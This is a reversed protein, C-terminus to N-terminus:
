EVSILVELLFLFQKPPTSRPRGKPSVDEGGDTLRSDLCHLIKLM